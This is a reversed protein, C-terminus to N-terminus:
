LNHIPYRVFKDVKSQYDADLFRKLQIILVEGVRYIEM